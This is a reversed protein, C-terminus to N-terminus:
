SGLAFTAGAQMQFHEIVPGLTYAPFYTLAGVIVIVGILLGVWLAGTTPFTGASEAIRKKAALHGALALIPVIMLYRGILMALGLGITYFPVNANLGALASGNNGTASTFAYLMETLGHAAPNGRSALAEPTVAALGTFGLIALPIVLLSLMVMKVDYPEIKKGIYEPTRGVMLGAIFIALVAYVLFGYLGAGVGGFIVEGLGINALPIMGGLATFSDHVANVAGCSAATTIVAFLASAAIGFRQEKGEMNGGPAPQGYLLTGQDAGARGLIPNGTQEAVTTVLVGVLFLGLMAAFIAWGQRTNGVMCGFTYTLGAPIAFIALMELFNTLPTPNEFPHASNANFFGGGNTGLMKIAEQSAVPGLPLLNTTGAIGTVRQYADLTQPVGRAILVLAGACCIPLLLYLTCRTLDVWFNGIENASRRAFGRIVAIAIAIGTAASTFNHVALGVMQSFNSMTIEPYYSQWNTNTAFSVATNFALREEVPPLAQANLPLHNQLRLIAYTLLLGVLNFLLMAITYTTWRMERTEDVGALRYFGREIPHLVPSLVTREGTFIRFMFTGLPKTLLMLLLVYLGDQLITSTM